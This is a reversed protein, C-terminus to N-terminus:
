RITVVKSMGSGNHYQRWLSFDRLIEGADTERRPIDAERKNFCRVPSDSVRYIM